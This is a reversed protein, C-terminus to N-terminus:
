EDAAGDAKTAKVEGDIQRPGVVAAAAHCAPPQQKSHHEIDNGINEDQGQVLGNMGQGKREPSTLGVEAGFQGQSQVTTGSILEKAAVLVEDDAQSGQHQDGERSDDKGQQGRTKRGVRQKSGDAIEGARGAIDPRDVSQQTLRGAYKHFIRSRAVAGPLEAGSSPQGPPLSLAPSTCLALPCRKQSRMHSIYKRRQSVRAHALLWCALAMVVLLPGSNFDTAMGTLIMGFAEAFYCILLSVIISAVLVPRMRKGRVVLL